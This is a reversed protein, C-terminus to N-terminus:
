LEGLYLLYKNFRSTWMKEKRLMGSYVCHTREQGCLMHQKRTNDWELMIIENMSKYYFVSVGKNKNNM